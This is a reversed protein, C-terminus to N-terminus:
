KFEKDAKKVEELIKRIKKERSRALFFSIVGWAFGAAGLIVFPLEHAYVGAAVLLPCVVMAYSLAVRRDWQIMEPDLFIMKGEKEKEM